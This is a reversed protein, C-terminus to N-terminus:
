QMAAPHQMSTVYNLVVRRTERTPLTYIYINLVRPQYTILRHSIRNSPNLVREHEEGGRAQTYNCSCWCRLYRTSRRTDISCVNRIIPNVIIINNNRREFRKVSDFLCSLTSFVLVCLYISVDDDDNTM